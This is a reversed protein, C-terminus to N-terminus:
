VAGESTNREIIKKRPAGIRYKRDSLSIFGGLAMMLCGIWLCNIMPKYYLRTSFSNDPNKEGLVAHLDGLNRPYIAAETTVMEPNKFSRNEPQMNLILDEGLYVDFNGRIADYNPGKVIKTGKFKFIYEGVNVQDGIKVSQIKEVEFSSSLTIGFILVGVGAHAISGGIASKPYNIIRRFTDNIPGKFLKIRELLDAIAGTILWVSLIIGLVALIPGKYTFFLTILAAFITIIICM